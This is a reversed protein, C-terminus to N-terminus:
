RPEVDVRRVVQATGTKMSSSGSPSSEVERGGATQLGGRRGSRGGGRPSGAAGGPLAQATEGAAEKGEPINFTKVQQQATSGVQPPSVLKSPTDIHLLTHICPLRRSLGTISPTISALTPLQSGLPLANCPLKQSRRQDGKSRGRIGGEGSRRKEGPGRQVIRGGVAAVLAGDRQHGGPGADVLGVTFAASGEVVGGGGVGVPPSAGERGKGAGCEEPAGRWVEEREEGLASGWEDELWSASSSSGRFSDRLFSAKKHTASFVGPSGQGPGAPERSSGPVRLKIRPWAGHTLCFPSLYKRGEFFHITKLPDSFSFM